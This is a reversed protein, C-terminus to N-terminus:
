VHAKAPLGPTSLREGWAILRKSLALRVRDSLPSSPSSRSWQRLREAEAIRDRHIQKALHYSNLDM